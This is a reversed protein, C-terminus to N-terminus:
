MRRHKSLDIEWILKQIQWHIQQVGFSQKRKQNYRHKEYNVSLQLIKTIGKPDSDGM